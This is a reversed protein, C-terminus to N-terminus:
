WRLLKRAACADRLCVLTDIKAIKIEATPVEAGRRETVTIAYTTMIRESRNRRWWQNAGLTLFGHSKESALSMPRRLSKARIVLTTPNKVTWVDGRRIQTSLIWSTRCPVKRKEQLQSQVDVDIDREVVPLLM